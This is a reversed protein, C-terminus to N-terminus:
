FGAFAVLFRVEFNLRPGAAPSKASQVPLSASTINGSIGHRFNMVFGYKKGSM